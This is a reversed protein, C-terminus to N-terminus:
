LVCYALKRNPKYDNKENYKRGGEASLGFLCDFIGIDDASTSWGGIILFLLMALSFQVDEM